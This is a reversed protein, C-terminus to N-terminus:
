DAAPDFLEASATDRQGNSGGTVLVRGSPLLTSTHGHRPESMSSVELFTRSDLDLVEASATIGGSTVGGAVLARGPLLAVVTHGARGARMPIPEEFFTRRAVSYLEAAHVLEGGKRREGGVILVQSGGLAVARVWDRPERLDGEVSFRGLRPSYRQIHRAMRGGWQGGILLVDGDPLLVTEANGVPALLSGTASFRATSPDFVEALTPDGVSGSHYGGAILVRGSPLLTASPYSRPRAMPAVPLFRGSAPDYLEASALSTKGDHGGAILVRGDALLVAAHHNRPVALDGVRTFTESEPDFLEATALHAGNSLGGVLLVKGSTLLTASHRSRASTMHRTRAWLGRPLRRGGHRASLAATPTVELRLLAGCREPPAGDRANARDCAAPEGDRTLTEREHRARRGAGGVFLVGAGVQAEASGGASLEFAGVTAATVVHTVGECSGSWEEPHPLDRGAEYRGVITMAVSLEGASQLKAELSAAFAPMSAYLEDSTRISLRDQKPTLGAYRYRRPLRCDALVEMDCGEYRVAVLGTRVLSELKARAASPWEVILPESQSKIVGCKTQGRLELPPPEAATRATSACAVSALILAMM